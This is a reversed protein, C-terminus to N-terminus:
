NSARCRLPFYFIIQQKNSFYKSAGGDGRKTEMV